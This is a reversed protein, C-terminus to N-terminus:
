QGENYIFWYVSNRKKQLRPVKQILCKPTRKALYQSSSVHRIALFNFLKTKVTFHAIKRSNVNGKRLHEPTLKILMKRAGKGPM